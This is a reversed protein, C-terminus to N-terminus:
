DWLVEVLEELENKGCIPCKKNDKDEIVEVKNGCEECGGIYLINEPILKIVPVGVMDKCTTCVAKHFNFQFRPFIKGSAWTRVKNRVEEDFFDLVVDLNCHEIGCGIKYEWSKGCAKCTSKYIEGM